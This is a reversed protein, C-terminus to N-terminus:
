AHPGRRLGLCVTKRGVSANVDPNRVAHCRFRLAEAGSRGRAGAYPPILRDDCCRSCSTPAHSSRVTPCRPCRSSWRHSRWPPWRDRPRGGPRGGRAYRQHVITSMGLHASPSHPTSSMGPFLQAAQDEPSGRCQIGVQPYYRPTDFMSGGRSGSAGDSGSGTVDVSRGSPTSGDTGTVSRVRRLAVHFAIAATNIRM